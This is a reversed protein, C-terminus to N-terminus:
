INFTGEVELNLGAPSKRERHRRPCPEGGGDQRSAGGSGESVAVERRRTVVDIAVHELLSPKSALEVRLVLAVDHVEDPDGHGTRKLQLLERPQFLTEAFAARM